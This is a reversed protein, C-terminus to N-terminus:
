WTIATASTTNYQVQQMAMVTAQYTCIKDRGPQYMMGALASKCCDNELDLKVIPSPQIGRLDCCRMLYKALRSAAPFTGDLMILRVPKSKAHLPRSAMWESLLM